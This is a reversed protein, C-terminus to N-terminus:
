SLSNEFRASLADITLRSAVRAGPAGGIVDAVAFLCYGTGAATM